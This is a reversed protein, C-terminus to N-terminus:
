NFESNLFENLEMDYVYRIMTTMTSELSTIENRLSQETHTTFLQPSKDISYEFQGTFMNKQAVGINYLGNFLDYYQDSVSVNGTKLNITDEQIINGYGAVILLSFKYEMKNFDYTRITSSIDGPEDVDGSIVQSCSNSSLYCTYGRDEFYDITFQRYDEETLIIQGTALSGIEELNECATLVFMISLLIM